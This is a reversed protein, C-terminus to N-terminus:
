ILVEVACCNNEIVVNRCNGGFEGDLTWPLDDESHFEIKSTKFYHFYESVMERRLFANMIMQFEVINLPKKILLCEFVGDNMMVDSGGLDKIGAVTKANSTMGFIFDGSIENGDYTATINYSKFVGLRKMGEMVYALSGFMNKMQQPTEYAVDTLAGFGAVYTFYKDNFKGIDVAMAEGSTIRNAAEIMNKPVGLSSAFDNMTGAPIYGLPIKVNLSMMATIVENLTGDGGSCCIVDFDLGRSITKHFADERAQTPHITVEYGGKVFIDIIGTLHEKINGKGSNPNYIFLM